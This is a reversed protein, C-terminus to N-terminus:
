PYVRLILELTFYELESRKVFLGNSSKIRLVKM